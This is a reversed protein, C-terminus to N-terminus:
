LCYRPVVYGRRRSPQFSRKCLCVWEGDVPAHLPDLHAHRFDAQFLEGAQRSTPDIDGRREFSALIDIARLPQSIHGRSDPITSKLRTIPGRLFREPTPSHESVSLQTTM